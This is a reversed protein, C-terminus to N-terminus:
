FVWRRQILFSLLFLGLDAIIRCLLVSSIWIQFLQIIGYSLLTHLACLALFKPVIRKWEEESRFVFVKGGTLNVVIAVIRAVLLSPLTGFSLWIGLSFVAFDVAFTFGSLIAFRTLEGSM